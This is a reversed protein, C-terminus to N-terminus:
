GYGKGGDNGVVVGVEGKEDGSVGGQIDVHGGSGGGRWVADRRRGALGGEILAGGELLDDRHWQDRVREAKGLRGDLRVREEGGGVAVALVEDVRRELGGLGDGVADVGLEGVDVREGELREVKGLALPSGGEVGVGLLEKVGGLHGGVVGTAEDLGVGGRELFRVALADVGGGLRRVLRVDHGGVVRGVGLKVLDLALVGVELAGGVDDLVELGVEGLRELRHRRAALLLAVLGGLLGLADRVGDKGLELAHAVKRLAQRGLAALADAGDHVGEGLRVLTQALLRAVRVDGSGGAEEVHDLKDALLRERRELLGDDARGRRRRLLGLRDDVRRNVGGLLSTQSAIRHVVYLPGCPPEQATAEREREQGQM